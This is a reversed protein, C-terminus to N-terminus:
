PTLLRQLLVRTLKANLKDSLAHCMELFCDVARDENLQHATFEALAEQRLLTVEDLYLQLQSEDEASRGDVDLQRREIELLRRIFRDLRHEQSLIRRRRWWRSSLWVAALMSVIFSRIGETGEVFDPNLLPKLEPHLVHGAGAHQVFESEGDAFDVGSVTLESLGHTRQFEPDLLTSTMAEILRTSVDERTLLQAPTGVTQFSEPPIVAPAVQLYGAPIELAYLSPNRALMADRFPIPTVRCDGSLLLSRIVPADVGATIVAVDVDGELLAQQMEPYPVVTLTSTGDNEHGLHRRLLTAMAMDGSLNANCAIRLPRNLVALDTASNRTVIPVLAESYLNSVFRVQRESEAGGPLEAQLIVRTEPQYLCLDVQGSSLLSLNQLSGQTDVVEVDIGLRQELARALGVAILQYRGGEPGGAIRVRAPLRTQWAYFSAVLTLVLVTVLSLWPVSHRRVPRSGVPARPDGGTALASTGTADGDAM